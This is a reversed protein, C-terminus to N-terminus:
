QHIHGISIIIPTYPWHQNYHLIQQIHGISTTAYHNTYIALAPLQIIPTYPQLISISTYLWHQSYYLSQHIHGTSTTTYHITYIALAPQLQHKHCTSTTTHNTYIALARQLVIIPTYPWYQKLYLSQQMHVICTTNLTYPWHQNYDAYKKM